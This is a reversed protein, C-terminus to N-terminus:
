RSVASTMKAWCSPCYDFRRYECSESDYLYAESWEKKLANALEDSNLEEVLGCGDCKIYEIKSM